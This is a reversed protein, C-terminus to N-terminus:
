SRLEPAVGLEEVFAAHAAGTNCESVRVRVAVVVHRQARSAEDAEWLVLAALDLGPRSDLGCLAGVVRGGVRPATGARKRSPALLILAKSPLTGLVKGRRRAPAPGCRARVFHLVRSRRKSNAGFATPATLHSTLEGVAGSNLDGLSTAGPCTDLRRDGTPYVGLGQAFAAFM